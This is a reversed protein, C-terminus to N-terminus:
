REEPQFHRAMGKPVNHPRPALLHVEGAALRQVLEVHEDPLEEVGLVENERQQSLAPQMGRM